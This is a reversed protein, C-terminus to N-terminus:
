RFALQRPQRNPAPLSKTAAVFETVSQSLQIWSDGSAGGSTGDYWLTATRGTIMPSSSSDDVYVRLRLRQGDSVALDNGALWARIAAESTQLSHDAAAVGTGNAGAPSAKDQLCWTSWIVPNAGNGDVVAIEVRIGCTFTNSAAARMNVRVLGSLTFAALPKSYWEVATGGGSDTWQIGPTVWGASTNTVISNVGDGRATWMEKEINAGVAPGAVDTLFLQTGAPATINFTFTETFEVWSDGVAAATTGAFDLTFSFGGGMTGADDGFVVVRIRDGKLFATSTPTVTFNNVASTSIALETTRTSTAITTRTGDPRVRDIHANIAVNASMNSEFAWLNITITGSITVDASLPPSIWQYGENNNLEIGATPGAVTSGVAQTASTGRTTHLLPTSGWGDGGGALKTEEAGFHIGAGM